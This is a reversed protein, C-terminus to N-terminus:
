TGVPTHLAERIEKFLELEEETRKLLDIWQPIIKEWSYNRVVFSRSRHGYERRLDPSNYAIELKELLSKQSPKEYFQNTPVYVPYEVYDDPDITEVLWGRPPEGGGEVHETQSSNRPCIPPTACAMAEVMPLSFGEAEANHVYIDASGLIKRLEEDRVPHVIPDFLPFHILEEMGLDSRLAVLDYGRLPAYPNTQLILHPPDERHKEVFRSWTRMLLPLLKRPGLNAAVDVALLSTDKPIPPAYVGSKAMWERAEDYEQKSLPRFKETDIGHKICGIKSPPYFKQLQRYGFDSYAIIKYFNRGYNSMKATWPGDVPVYGIVPLNIDNCFELGFIDQFAIIVELGYTPAYDRNIVTPASKPDTLTLVTVKKGGPTELEHVGGWVIVDAGMSGIFTIEVGM